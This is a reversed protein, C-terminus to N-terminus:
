AVGAATLIGQTMTMDCTEPLHAPLHKNIPYCYYTNSSNAIQITGAGPSTHRLNIHQNILLHHQSCLYMYVYYLKCLKKHRGTQRVADYKHTHTHTAMGFIRFTVYSIEVKRRRHKGSNKERSPNLQGKRGDVMFDFKTYGHFLLRKGSSM